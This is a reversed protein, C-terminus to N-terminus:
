ASEEVRAQKLKSEVGVELGRMMLILWSFFSILSAWLWVVVIVWLLTALLTGLSGALRSAVLDPNFLSIDARQARVGELQAEVAAVNNAAARAAEDAERFDRDAAEAANELDFERLRRDALEYLFTRYQACTEVTMSRWSGRPCTAMYYDINARVNDVTNRSRTTRLQDIMPGTFTTNQGFQANSQVQNQYAAWAETRRTQLQERFDPAAVSAAHENARALEVQLREIEEDLRLGEAIEYSPYLNILSATIGGSLMLLCLVLLGLYQLKNFRLMTFVRSRKYDEEEEGAERLMQLADRLFVFPTTFFTFAVRLMAGLSDGLRGGSLILVVGLSVAAFVAIGVVPHEFLFAWTNAIGFMTEGWVVVRGKYRARAGNAM